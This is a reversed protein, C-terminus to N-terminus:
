YQMFVLLPRPGKKIGTGRLNEEGSAQDLDVDPNSYLQKM